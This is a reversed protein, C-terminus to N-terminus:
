ATTKRAVNRLNLVRGEPDTESAFSLVDFSWSDAVKALENEYDKGKLFLITSNPHLYPAALSLLDGLPAMARASLVDASGPHQPGHMEARAGAVFVPARTERTAHRLFAAKKANSEVLTFRRGAHPKSALAVILGPFGAGSGLDVWHEFTPAHKLLQLSDGVHRTWVSSLTSEAVM